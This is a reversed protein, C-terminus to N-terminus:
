VNNFRVQNKLIRQLSRVSKGTEIRWKDNRQDKPLDSLQLALEVLRNINFEGALYDKWDIKAGKLEVCKIYTRFNLDSIEDQYKELFNYIEQDLKNFTKMVKLIEDNSPQFDIYIGRTLLAKINRGVRKFDNCLLCVKNNSVFESKIEESSVKHTTDYRIIKKKNTECIQKLLGVTISNKILSDVDDFVVLHDRNKMLRLYISLPTAHGNFMLYNEDQYFSKAITHTKGIGGSGRIVLLSIRNDTFADAYKKLKDYTTVIM